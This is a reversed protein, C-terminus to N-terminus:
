MRMDLINWLDLVCKCAGQVCASRDQVCRDDNQVCGGLSQVCQVKGVTAKCAHVCTRAAHWASKVTGLGTCYFTEWKTREGITMLIRIYHTITGKKNLTRDVNYVDIPQKLAIRPIRLKRTYAEDIFRGSAGTNALAEEKEVIQSTSATKFSIPIYISKKDIHV